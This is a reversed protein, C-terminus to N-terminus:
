LALKDAYFHEEIVKGDKVKYFGYERMQMRAGGKPTVDMDFILLFSDKGVYAETVGGGHVADFHNMAGKTKEIVADLGTASYGNQEFSVVDPAYLEQEAKVNEGAKVYEILKKVLEQTEMLNKGKM